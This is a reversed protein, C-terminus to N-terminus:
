INYSALIKPKVTEIFELGTINEAISLVTNGSADETLAITAQVIKSHDGRRRYLFEQVLQRQNDILSMKM